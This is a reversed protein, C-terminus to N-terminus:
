RGGWQGLIGLNVGGPAGPIAFNQPQSAQFMANYLANADPTVSQQPAGQLPPQGPFSVQPYLQQISPMAYQLATQAGQQRRAIDQETFAQGLETQARQETAQARGGFLGGGLNARTRLQESLQEQQRGRNADLAEQEQPTYGFPSQLRQMGQQALEETLAAQTPSFQQRLDQQQQAMQPAYQKYLAAQLAAQQPYYQEALGQEMEAVKPDYQLRANYLSEASQGPDPAPTTPAQKIETKSGGM